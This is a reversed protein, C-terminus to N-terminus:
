ILDDVAVGLAEALRKFSDVTGDRKGTEIQSLYGESLEAMAALASQNLGRHQRWLKVPSEGALMRDLMDAPILEEEGSALAAKARDYARLDRNPRCLPTKKNGPM